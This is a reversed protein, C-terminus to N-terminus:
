GGDVAALLAKEREAMVTQRERALASVDGTGDVRAQRIARDIRAAELQLWELRLTAPTATATGARVSMQQVLTVLEPDDPLAETPAALHAALHAAARRNVGAGFHRDPDVRALLDAAASPLALCLTLFTRELRTQRDTPVAPASPIAPLPPGDEPGPDSYEGGSPGGYPDGAYPDGAYPDGDYPGGGHPDGGAPGGGSARGAGGAGAPRGAGSGAAGGGGGGGGRGRSPAGEVPEVLLAALTPSLAMREAAIAALEERLASPPLAAIVPRLAAIAADKGEAHELDSTALIRDVRFRVFPVSDAVLREVAGPGEAQVLEAPDRGPPLAAVRLELKRGEAVRAGRLMAEQGADDADLALVTRPALRVLEGVQEETLSTGMICVANEVGAQHLALVDTYGEVAIVAGSRAAAHRALHQGYLVASKHFLDTEPTNIYKAGDREGMARAGFGIVRGRADWLPFTIRRRFRDYYRNEGKQSKVTLGAAYLEEGSFGARRTAVMVKDWSSPAYGVRFTRLVEEGLGRGALYERAAAAEQSEWLYREYYQTTRELLERLRDARRRAEAARPDEDEVELTVGYRDALYEMTEVFDLGQTEMVFSFVDGGKGCGFCYYVKEVPNIGFSPTREDHFPCLGKLQNVGSRQLDITSGVLDAFDVADRVQDRAEDSYKPM